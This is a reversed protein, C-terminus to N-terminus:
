FEIGILLVDDIQKGEGKYQEFDDAFLTSYKEIPLDKNELILERIRKPSYKKEEPGGLQDPLGDSFFFFKDGRKYRIAYNTFNEEEKKRHPIGGIAKRNGKYEVLEGDRLLYLPRHAGAFQLEKDVPNIKCFAIDMGDRAEAEESEQKLTKRVGFHLLDCVESAKIERDRDVINNLLFYGVFSLLAGPVGHGTCDVVAIYIDNGHRFFWPFDGSVVDRPKYYIFSKPLYERVTRIDPLISSQIRQAYNISDEIKKNKDQIEHEIRKAETIDHGVFLITELENENFEPIAAFSMIRNTQLGEIVAPITIEASTKNPYAKITEITERFYDLLVDSMRIEHYTKNLLEKPEANLFQKVTPNAYFFQGVTSLRLILDLSNESLAQMKSKLREEREARKRETIDSSNLIIGEIAPDDLLNRGTAELFIKQGNKKMYTYQITVPESPNALLLRFMERMSNEGKRTLRDIDKGNMMEEPTFGLIKIVSPSEYKLMMNMDYISIIESANELLSFQRKQANEVEQIKAELNENTKKLEEQTARMEEANQRLEEENEQLELTMQQSEHLLKETRENIQLNFITRAIIEGLEKLFAITLEPISKELSAFEMVGQLKEDTILPILLLSRPKQDGLIGSSITVYDDPIDTRYIYDMEYACQGILGYGLKYESSTHKRRNFAYTAAGSLIKKDENYIYLAGQVLKTYDVLTRIVSNSLEDMRAGQRLMDSITEKGEAIWNQESEKKANQFLNERMILLSQALIDHDTSIDLRYHYDREGIHKAFDAMANMRTERENLMSTFKDFDRLRRRDLLYTGTIFIVPILDILYLLPNNHHIRGFGAFSIVVKDHIFQMTWAILLIGAGAILATIFTESRYINQLINKKNENNM